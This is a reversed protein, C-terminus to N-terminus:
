IRFHLLPRPGENLRALVPRAPPRASPPAPSRARPRAFPLGPSNTWPRAPPRGPPHVAPRALSTAPPRPPRLQLESRAPIGETLAAQTFTRSNTRSRIGHSAQLRKPLLNLEM